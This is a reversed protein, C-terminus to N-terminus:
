KIRKCTSFGDLVDFLLWTGVHLELSVRRGVGVGVHADEGNSAGRLLQLLGALQDILSNPYTTRSGEQEEAGFTITQGSIWSRVHWHRSGSPHALSSHHQHGAPHWWLNFMFFGDFPSLPTCWRRARGKSRAQQSGKFVLTTEWEGGRGKRQELAWYHSAAAAEAQIRVVLSWGSRRLLLIWNRNQEHWMQVHNKNSCTLGTSISHFVANNNICRNDLHNSVDFETNKMLPGWVNMVPPHPVVKWIHCGWAWCSCLLYVFWSIKGSLLSWRKIVHSWCFNRKWTQIWEKGM